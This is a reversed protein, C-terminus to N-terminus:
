TTCSPPSTTPSPTSSTPPPPLLPPPPPTSTPSSLHLAMAQGIYYVRVSHHFMTPDLLSHAYSLAATALPTTPTPLSALSIRPPPTHSLHPHRALFTTIDREVVSVDLERVLPSVSSSM